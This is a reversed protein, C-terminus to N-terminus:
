HADPLFRRAVEELSRYTMQGEAKAQLTKSIEARMWADHEPAVTFDPELARFANLPDNSPSSTDAM